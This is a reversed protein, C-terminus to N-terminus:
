PLKGMGQIHLILSHSIEGTKLGWDMSMEAPFCCIMLRLILFQGALLTSVLAPGTCPLPSFIFVGWVPFHRVLIRHNGLYFVNPM